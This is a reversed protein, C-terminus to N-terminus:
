AGGDTERAIAAQEPTEVYATIVLRTGVPFDKAFAKHAASHDFGNGTSRGEEVWFLGLPVTEDLYNTRTLETCILVRQRAPADLSLVKDPQTHRVCTWNSYYPSRAMESRERQSGYSYFGTERCGEGKCRVTFTGGRRAM